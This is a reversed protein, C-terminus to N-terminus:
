LRCSVEGHSCVLVRDCASWWYFLLATSFYCGVTCYNQLAIRSSVVLGVFKLMNQTQLELVCVHLEKLVTIFKYVSRSGPAEWASLKSIFETGLHEVGTSHTHTRGFSYSCDHLFQSPHFELFSAAFFFFTSVYQPLEEVPITADETEPDPARFKCFQFVYEFMCIFHMKCIALFKM